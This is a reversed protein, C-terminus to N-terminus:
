DLWVVRCKFRNTSPFNGRTCVRSWWPCYGYTASLWPRLRSIFRWCRYWSPIISSISSIIKLYKSQSHIYCCIINVQILGIPVVVSQMCTFTICICIMTLRLHSTAPPVNPLFMILETTCKLRMIQCFANIALCVSHRCWLLLLFFYWLSTRPECNCLLCIQESRLKSAHGVASLSGTRKNEECPQAAWWPMLSISLVQYVICVPTRKHWHM